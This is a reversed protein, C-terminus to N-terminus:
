SSHAKVTQTSRKRWVQTGCQCECRFAFPFGADLRKDLKALTGVLSIWGPIEIYCLRGVPFWSESLTWLWFELLFWFCSPTNHDSVHHQHTFLWSQNLIRGNSCAGHVSSDVCGSAAEVTGGSETVWPSLLWCTTNQTRPADIILKEQCDFTDAGAAEVTSTYWPSSLSLTGHTHLDCM